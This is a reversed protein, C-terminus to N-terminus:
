VANDVLYLPVAAVRWRELSFGDFTRLDFAQRKDDKEAPINFSGSTGGGTTAHLFGFRFTANLALKASSPPLINLQGLM